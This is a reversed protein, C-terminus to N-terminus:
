DDIGNANDYTQEDESCKVIVVMMSIEDGHAEGDTGDTDPGNGDDGCDDNMIMVVM